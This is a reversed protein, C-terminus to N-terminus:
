ELFKYYFVHVIISIKHLPNKMLQLKCLRECLYCHKNPMTILHLAEHSGYFYNYTSSYAYILLTTIPELIM